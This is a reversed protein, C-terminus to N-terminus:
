KSEKEKAKEAEAAKAASDLEETYKKIQADLYKITSDALQQTRPSEVVNQGVYAALMKYATEKQPMFNAYVIGLFCVVMGFVAIKRPGKTLDRKPVPQQEEERRRPTTVEGITEFRLWASTEGNPYRVKMTGDNDITTVVLVDGAKYTIWDQNLVLNQGLFFGFRAKKGDTEEYTKQIAYMIVYAVASIFLLFGWGGYTGDTTLVDILYILFPWSM